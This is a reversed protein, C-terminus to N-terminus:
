WNSAPTQDQKKRPQKKPSGSPSAASKSAVKSSAASATTGSSSASASSASSQKKPKKGTNWEKFVADIKDKIGSYPMQKKKEEMLKRAKDSPYKKIIQLLSGLVYADRSAEFKLLLMDAIKKEGFSDLAKAAELMVRTNPDYKFKYHLVPLAATAKLKVLAQIAAVRIKEDESTLIKLITKVAKPSGIEGCAHIIRYRIRPIKEEELMKLFDPLIKENKLQGLATVAFARLFQKKNKNMAIKRLADYAPQHRMKGMATVLSYVTDQDTDENTLMSLLRPAKNTAGIEGLAHIAAKVVMQEKNTLFLEITDASKPNKISGLASLAAVQMEPTEADKLNKLLPEVAKSVKRRDLLRILQLKVDKDTEEKLASLLLDTIEQQPHDAMSKIAQKKQSPTGYEMTLKWYEFDKIKYSPAKARSASSASSSLAAASSSSSGSGTSSGASSSSKGSAAAFLVASYSVLTATFLCVTSIFLTRRM